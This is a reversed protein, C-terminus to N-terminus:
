SSTTPLSTLLKPFVVVLEPRLHMPRVVQIEVEDTRSSGELWFDIQAIIFRYIKSSKSLRHSTKPVLRNLSPAADAIGDTVAGGQSQLDKWANVVRSITVKPFGTKRQIQSYSMPPDDGYGGYLSLIMLRDEASLRKRAARDAPSRNIRPQDHGRVEQSNTESVPGGIGSPYGVHLGPRQNSESQSTPFHGGAMRPQTLGQPGHHMPVFQQSPLQQQVLPLVQYFVTQPPLEAMQIRPQQFQIYQQQSVSHYAVPMHGPSVLQVPPYTSRRELTLPGQCIQTNVHAPTSHLFRDFHHNGPTNAGVGIASGGIFAAQSVEPTTSLGLSYPVAYPFSPKDIGLTQARQPRRHNHAAKM